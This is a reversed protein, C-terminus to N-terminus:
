SYVVHREITRFGAQEYAKVAPANDAEVYLIVSSHDAAVLHAVGAAILPAGLGKGRWHDAVGVVYIEGQEANHSKTWHFGAVEGTDRHMYLLVGAPDFWETDMGAQLRALDWGGQEPHWSFASNNAELWGRQVTQEGWRQCATSYDVLELEEVPPTTSSRRVYATLEEGDIGMVLLERSVSAHRRRALAQAAPLDGHAWVAPVDAHDLLHTAVHRRRCAPHVALEASDEAVALVGAASEGDLALWHTHHLTADHIGRVFHESLAEVGDEDHVAALLSETSSRLADHTPLHLKEYRM